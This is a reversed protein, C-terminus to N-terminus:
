IHPYGSMTTGVTATTTDTPHTSIHRQNQGVGLTVRCGTLLLTTRHSMQVDGVWSPTTVRTVCEPLIYPYSLALRCCPSAPHWIGIDRHVPHAAEEHRSVEVDLM